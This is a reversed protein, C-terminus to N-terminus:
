CGGPVVIVEMKELRMVAGSCRQMVQQHCDGEEKRSTEEELM